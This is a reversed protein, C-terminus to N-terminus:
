VLYALSQILSVCLVQAWFPWPNSHLGYPSGLPTRHIHM